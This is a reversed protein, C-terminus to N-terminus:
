RVRVLSVAATNAYRRNSAYGSSKGYGIGLDRPRYRDNLHVPAHESKAATATNANNTANYM